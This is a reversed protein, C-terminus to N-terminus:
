ALNSRNSTSLALPERQLREQSLFLVREGEVQGLAQWPQTINGKGGTYFHLVCDLRPQTDPLNLYPRYVDFFLSFKILSARISDDFDRFIQAREEALRYLIYKLTAQHSRERHGSLRKLDAHYINKSANSLLKAFHPHQELMHLDMQQQAWVLSQEFETAYRATLESVPVVAFLEPFRQTLTMLSKVYHQTHEPPLANAYQIRADGPFLTIKLGPAYCRRITENLRSLNQLTAAESADAHTLPLNPNKGGGWFLFLSIPASARIKATIKTLALDRSHVSPLPGTRFRRHM